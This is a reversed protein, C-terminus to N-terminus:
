PSDEAPERPTYADPGQIGVRHQERLTKVLGTLMHQRDFEPFLFKEELMGHYDEIFSRILSATGHLVEHINERALGPPALAAEYVLMLRNLVGHERMLDESATVAASVEAAPAEEAQASRMAVAWCTVSASATIASRRTLNNM